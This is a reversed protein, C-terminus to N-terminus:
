VSKVKLESGALSIVEDLSSPTMENQFKSLHKKIFAEPLDWWSLKQLKEITPADFRYKILKAPVGAVIGYPPVDKTVVSHAAIVAGNGITIGTTVTVNMGIWVDNGIVIPDPRDDYVDKDSWTTGTANKVSFFIPSTSIFNTPHSSLGINVYRSISCFKGINVRFINSSHGIYSYEGITSERVIVFRQLGAKDSIMTKGDFLSLM